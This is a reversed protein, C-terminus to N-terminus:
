NIFKIFRYVNFLIPIVVVVIRQASNRGAAIATNESHTYTKKRTHTLSSKLPIYAKEKTLTIMPDTSYKSAPTLIAGFLVVPPIISCNTMNIKPTTTITIFTFSRSKTPATRINVKITDTDTALSIM